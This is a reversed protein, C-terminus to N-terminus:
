SSRSINWVWPLVECWVRTGLMQVHRRASSSTSRRRTYGGTGFELHACQSNSSRWKFREMSKIQKHIQPDVLYSWTPGENAETRTMNKYQLLLFSRYTAQYVLLDAGLVTELPKKDYVRVRVVRGSKGTFRAHRMSPRLLGGFIAEDHRILDQEHLPESDLLDLVSNADEMGTADLSRLAGRRDLSAIDLTLGLADRQEVLRTTRASDGLLRREEERKVFLAGLARASEPRLQMIADILNRWIVPDIRKLQAATSVYEAIGPVSQLTDVDIPEYFLVPDSLRMMLKGTGGSGHMREMLVASCISTEGPCASLPRSRTAGM